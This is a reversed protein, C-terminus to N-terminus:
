SRHSCLTVATTWILSPDHLTRARELWEFSKEAQGFFAYTEAVQFEPAWQSPQSRPSRQQAVQEHHTV